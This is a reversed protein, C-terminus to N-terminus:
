WLSILGFRASPIAFERFSSCDSRHCQLCLFKPDNRYPANVIRYYTVVPCIGIDRGTSDVSDTSRLTATSRPHRSEVSCCRYIIRKRQRGVRASVATPLIPRCTQMYPVPFITNGGHYRSRKLALVNKCLVDSDKSYIATM